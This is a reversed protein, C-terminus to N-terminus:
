WSKKMIKKKELFQNVLVKKLNERKGIRLKEQQSKVFQKLCLKKILFLHECICLPKKKKFSYECM